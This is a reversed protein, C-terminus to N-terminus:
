FRGFTELGHLTLALARVVEELGWVMQGGADEVSRSRDQKDIWKLWVPKRADQVDGPM